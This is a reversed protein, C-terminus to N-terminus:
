NLRTAFTSSKDIGSRKANQSLATSLQNKGLRISNINLDKLVQIDEDVLSYGPVFTTIDAHYPPVKKIMNTGHFFRTRGQADIFQQNVPDVRVVKSLDAAVLAVSALAVVASISLFRMSSSPISLLPLIQSKSHFLPPSPLALFFFFLGLLSFRLLRYLCVVM